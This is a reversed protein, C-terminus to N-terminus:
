PPVQHDLERVHRFQTVRDHDGGELAPVVRALRGCRRDLVEGLHPVGLGHCRDVGLLVVVELDATRPDDHLLPPAPDAPGRGADQQGRGGRQVAIDQEDLADLRRGAPAREGDLQELERPLDTDGREHGQAGQEGVHRVGPGKRDAGGRLVLVDNVAEVELGALVFAGGADDPDQGVRGALCVQWRQGAPRRNRVIRSAGRRGLGGEAEDGLQLLQEVQGDRV